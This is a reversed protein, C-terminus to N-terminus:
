KKLKCKQSAFLVEDKYKVGYTCVSGVLSQWKGTGEIIEQTGVGGM